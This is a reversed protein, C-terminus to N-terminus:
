PEESDHEDNMSSSGDFPRSGLSGVVRQFVLSENRQSRRSTEGLTSSHNRNRRDVAQLNLMFRSMLIATMPETFVSIFSTKELGVMAISLMTFALHLSNLIALCRPVFPSILLCQLSNLGASTCDARRRPYEPSSRVYDIKGVKGNQGTASGCGMGSGMRIGDAGNVIRGNIQM